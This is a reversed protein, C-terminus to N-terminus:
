SPLVIYVSLEIGTDVLFFFSYWVCPLYWPPFEMESERTVLTLNKFDCGLAFKTSIVNEVAKNLLHIEIKKFHM